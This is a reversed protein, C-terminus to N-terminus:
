HRQRCGLAVGVLPATSQVVAAALATAEGRLMVHCVRQWATGATQSKWVLEPFTWESVVKREEPSVVQKVSPGICCGYGSRQRFVCDGALLCEEM